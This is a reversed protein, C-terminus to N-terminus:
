NQNSVRIKQEIKNDEQPSATHILVSVFWILALLAIIKEILWYLNKMSRIFEFMNKSM